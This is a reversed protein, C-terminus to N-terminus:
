FFRNIMAKFNLLGVLSTCKKKKLEKMLHGDNDHQEHQGCYNTIYDCLNILPCKKM